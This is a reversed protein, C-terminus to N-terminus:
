WPYKWLAEARPQLPMSFDKITNPTLVVFKVGLHRCATLAPSFAPDAAVIDPKIDQIIEVISRYIEVFEPGSWPLTVRLLVRVKSAATSLGRTNSFTSPDGSLIEPRSWASEMNIGRIEHFIVSRGNRSTQQAYDSTAKVFKAIPSFSALHVEVADELHLLAHSVALYVNAQGHESNTLLLIKKPRPSMPPTPEPGRFLLSTDERDSVM